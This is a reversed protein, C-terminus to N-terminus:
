CLCTFPPVCKILPPLELRYTVDNIKESIRFPGIFKPALKRSGEQLRFDRTSLWVRDGPTYAPTIGRRRDAHRKHRRLVHGIRRHTQEWVEGSRRLWHDVAPISSPQATWPMLPPQYGLVCQFPTLATTSSTLSNQAIEALPLYTAWDSQNDHCYVRLFKGLEQNTRECQGNTQPHYGSSLSVSIGLREMFAAWVQSTFQTGRDSVINEPIGFLRFVQHFLTEATQFATPLSPFPIFRVGRSFRDVVTLIVTNGQSEPLDTVFDVAIHSWPRAPVPLPMLKGAPLSRPTKCQSCVTCSAVFRHVDASMGEWWYKGSLLQFTRTEGPHGSTLSTHAWTILRDRFPAPVFLRNPPCVVPVVETANHQEIEEDVVWRVPSLIM